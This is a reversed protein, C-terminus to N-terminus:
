GRLEREFTSLANTIDKHIFSMKGRM